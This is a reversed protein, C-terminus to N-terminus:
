EGAKAKSFNFALAFRITNALPHNQVTPILYSFDLAFKSFKM